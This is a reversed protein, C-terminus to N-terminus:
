RRERRGLREAPADDLRELALQRALVLRGSLALDRDDPAALLDPERQGLRGQAVRRARGAPPDEGEPVDRALAGDLLELGVEDRGDRVLKAGRQGRDVAEGLGQEALVDREALLVLAREEAVDRGLRLAQDRDDVVEQADGAEVGARDADVEVGHVDFGHERLRDLADPRAAVPPM